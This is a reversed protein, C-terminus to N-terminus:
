EVYVRAREEDVVFPVLDLMHRTDTLCFAGEELLPRFIDLKTLPVGAHLFTRVVKVRHVRQEEPFTEGKQHTVETHRQLAQSIYTERAERQEMAKKSESHKTSKIRNEVMSRKLSLVECCAKCFLRRASVTLQENLYEHM